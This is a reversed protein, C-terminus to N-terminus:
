KPKPFDISGALTLDRTGLRDAQKPTMVFALIVQRGDEHAVHYCTQVVEVDDLKGIQSLRYVKTGGESPVEGSQLTKDPSWGPTREVEEVFESPTLTKGPLSREWRTITVQAVFDGRDILRMVLHDDTESVIQWDRTYLLGYTGKPHEYDLQLLQPPLTLGEPVSKLAGDSLGNPQAIPHRRLLTTAEVTSAPSAPGQEREDKQKWEVRVLRKSELDFECVADITMKVMAGAEIGNATGKVSINARSGAVGELKGVLAHEILGDFHCLVQVVPNGLKWTDGINIEKGPLLSPLHLTDFHESCLELESRFLAGGTSYLLPLGNQSQAIFLARQDRLTKQSTHGAIKIAAQATEYVRATKEANGTKAVSLIREPFVHVASAELPVSERKDGRKLQMTGKLTLKLEVKFCDGAALTEQLLYGKARVAPGVALLMAVGALTRWHMLM